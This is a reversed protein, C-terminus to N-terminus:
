CTPGRWVICARGGRRGLQSAFSRELVERRASEEEVDFVTPRRSIARWLRTLPAEGARDHLVANVDNMFDYGTTGDVGWSDRLREGPGLIKEIVLYADGPPCTPPRAAALETLRQRLRRCYPGPQSLGDVHDVRVGDILGETYLRFITEHTAAFVADDEVRMSVLENIDFFRRWNIEDGAVRWWALRYHQRELLRHM